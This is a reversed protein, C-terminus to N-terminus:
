AACYLDARFNELVGIAIDPVVSMIPLEFTQNTVPLKITRTGTQVFRCRWVSISAFDGVGPLRKKVATRLDRSLESSLRSLGKRIQEEIQGEDVCLGVICDPGPLDIDIEGAKVDIVRGLDDSTSGRVFASFKLEGGSKTAHVSVRSSLITAKLSDLELNKRIPTLTLNLKTQSIGQDDPTTLQAIFIKQVTQQEQTSVDSFRFPKSRYLPDLIRLPPFGPVPHPMMTTRFAMVQGRSSALSSPIAFSFEGLDNSDISFSMSPIFSGSFQGSPLDTALHVRTKGLPAFGETPKGNTKVYSAVFTELNTIMFLKGTINM